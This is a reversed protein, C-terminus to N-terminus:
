QAQFRDYRYPALMAPMRGHIIEEALLDGLLPGLTMGSHTTMVYLGQAFPLPGVIPHGDCPMPRVGVLPTCREVVVDSPLAPLYCRLRELMIGAGAALAAQSDDDAISADLDEAGLLLANGKAPRMHLEGYCTAYHVYRLWRWPELNPTELLLGKVRTMPYADAGQTDPCFAKVLAATAPGTALVVKATEFHGNDSIVGRVRGNVDRALERVRCGERIDGGLARVRHALFRTLQLGDVWGDALAILGQADDPFAVHPEMAALERAELWRVPYSFSQLREYQSKLTELTGSNGNASWALMGCGGMGLRDEGFAQALERHRAMGAANLRHYHNDAHKSTANLWAFTHTSTGSGISHEELLTVSVGDRALAHALSTGLVGGGVVVVEATESM